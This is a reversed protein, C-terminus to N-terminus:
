FAIDKWDKASIEPLRKGSELSKLLMITASKLDEEDYSQPDILIVRDLSKSGYKALYLKEVLEYIQETEEM